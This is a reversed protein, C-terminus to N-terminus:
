ALNTRQGIEERHDVFHNAQTDARIVELVYAALEFPDGLIPLGHAGNARIISCWGARRRRPYYQKSTEDWLFVGEAHIITM